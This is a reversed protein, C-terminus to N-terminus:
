IHRTAVYTALGGGETDRADAFAVYGDPRVLYLADRGFGARKLEPRWTFVCLELGLQRCRERLGDSADGYVHL